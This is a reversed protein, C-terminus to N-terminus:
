EVHKTTIGSTQESYSNYAIAKVTTGHSVAIGEVIRNGDVTYALSSYSYPRSCGPTPDTGDYTYYIYAEPDNCSMSVVVRDSSTTGRISISPANITIENPIKISVVRSCGGNKYAVAKVECGAPVVVDSAIHNNGFTETYERRNYNIGNESTPTSGDTTYYVTAGDPISITIVADRSPKQFGRFMISPASVTVSPQEEDPTDEPEEPKDPTSPTDPDPQPEVPTEPQDIGPPDTNGPNGGDMSCSALLCILILSISLLTRKM